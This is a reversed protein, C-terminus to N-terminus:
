VSSAYRRSNKSASQMSLSLARYQRLLRQASELESELRQMERRAQQADQLSKAADEVARQVEARLDEVQEQTHTHTYKYSTSVSLYRSLSLARARALSLSLSLTLSLSLSLNHMYVCRTRLAPRRTSKGRRLARASRYLQRQRGRKLGRIPPTSSPRLQLWRPRSYTWIRPAKCRTSKYRVSSPGCISRLSGERMDSSVTLTRVCKLLSRRLSGACM